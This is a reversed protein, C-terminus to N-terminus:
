SGGSITSWSRPASSNVSLSPSTAPMDSVELRHSSSQGTQGNDDATRRGGRCGHGNPLYFTRGSVREAITNQLLLRPYRHDVPQQRSRHQDPQDQARREAPPPAVRCRREHGDVVSQALAQAGEALRRRLRHAPPAPQHDTESDHDGEPAAEDDPEDCDATATVRTRERSENGIADHEDNAKRAIRADWSTASEKQEAQGPVQRQRDIEHGVENRDGPLEIVRDDDREHETMEDTGTPFRQDAFQPRAGFSRKRQDEAECIASSGALPVRLKRRETVRILGP